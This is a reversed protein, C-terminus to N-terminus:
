RKKRSRRPGGSSSGPMAGMLDVFNGAMLFDELGGGAMSEQAYMEEMVASLEEEHEAEIHAVAAEQTDFMKSCLQCCFQLRSGHRVPTIAMECFAELVERYEGMEDEAAAEEEAAKQCKQCVSFDCKRCDFFRKGEVIHRECLDCAYEADAKRRKLAHGNPCAPVASPAPVAGVGGFMANMMAEGLMEEEMRAARASARAGKAGGRGRRRRGKQRFASGGAIRLFEDIMAQEEVDLDMSGVGGFFAAFLDAAHDCGAGELEEADVCGTTDYMERREPDSLVEYASSIKQFEATAEPNDPNKDPHWRLALRRYAKRIDGVDADSPVDLTKYLGKPDKGSSRAM